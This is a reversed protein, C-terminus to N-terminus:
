EQQLVEAVEAAGHGYADAKVVACIDGGVAKKIYTFNSRLAGLDIEVWCHKEFDM